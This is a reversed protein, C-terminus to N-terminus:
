NSILIQPLCVRYGTSMQSPSQTLIWLFLCKTFILIKEFIPIQIKENNNEHVRFSKQTRPCTGSGWCCKRRNPPGFYRNRFKASRGFYRNRFKASRTFLILMKQKKLLELHECFREQRLSVARRCESSM